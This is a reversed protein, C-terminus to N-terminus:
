SNDRQKPSTFLLKWCHSCLPLNGSGILDVRDDQDGLNGSWDLGFVTCWKKDETFENKLHAHVAMWHLYIDLIQDSGEDVEMSQAFLLPEPNFQQRARYSPRIRM